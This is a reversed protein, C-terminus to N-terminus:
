RRGNPLKRDAGACRARRGRSRDVAAPLGDGGRDCRGTGMGRQRRPQSVGSRRPHDGPCRTQAGSRRGGRGGRRRHTGASRQPRRHAPRGSTSPCRRGSPTTRAAVLARVAEAAPGSTPEPTSASRRWNWTSGRWGAVSIASPSGPGGVQLILASVGTVLADLVMANGDAPHRRLRPRFNRPSKGAPCFTPIHTRVACSPGTAPSRPSLTDTWPPTSRGSRSDEYTPSDLLREPEDGLDAPARWRRQDACRRRRLAM